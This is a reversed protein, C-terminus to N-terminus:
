TRPGTPGHGRGLPDRNQVSLELFAGTIEVANNIILLLALALSSRSIM